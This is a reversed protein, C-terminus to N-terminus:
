GSDSHLEHDGRYRNRDGSQPNDVSIAEPRDQAASSETQDGDPDFLYMDLDSSPNTWNLSLNLNAIGTEIDLAYYVWDGESFDNPYSGGSAEDVTGEISHIASSEVAQVVNVSVPITINGSGGGVTISGNCAGPVATTVSITAAFTANGNAPVILSADSITIWDGADGSSRTINVTVDSDNRNFVTFTVTHNGQHVNGVFWESRNVLTGNRLANYAASVNLRGSGRELIDCDVWDASNMLAIEVEVPTLNPYAQLLLAAAGAVHPCAMSTGSMTTYDSGAGEWSASASTISVGPAALDIGVRGDGAPGRSSFDAIVDSSDTAAVAIAGYAVAPSGITCEGPGSNGAAVVAVCGSAVANSVAMGLPDRGTGDRQWSGFSMSLVDAHHEVSWEIGSIVWSDYGVGDRNMVKANFLTANNAVGSVDTTTNREGAAIGACHTGHGYVYLDDTTSDDTFDHELAIRGCDLDPHTDDIGTDLISINVGTGNYGIEWLSPASVIGDGYDAESAPTAAPETIAIKRDLWVKEVDPHSALCEIAGAPVKASVVNVIWHQKISEAPIAGLSATVREQSKIAPTKASTSDFLMRQRDKLEILVPINGACNEDMAAMLLPDIKMSSEKCIGYDAGPPPATAGIAGIAASAALM